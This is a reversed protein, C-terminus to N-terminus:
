QIKSANKMAERSVITRIVHFSLGAFIALLLLFFEIRKVHGILQASGAASLGFGLAFLVTTLVFCASGDIVTFMSKPIRRVGFLVMTAIRTGYIVHSAPIQWLGLWGTLAEVTPATRTYISSAQIGSSYNWGALFWIVDGTIAGSSACILAAGAKIYGLHALAGTLIPVVDAELAAALFVALLGYKILFVQMDRRGLNYRPGGRSRLKGTVSEGLYAVSPRWYIPRGCISMLACRIHRAITHM